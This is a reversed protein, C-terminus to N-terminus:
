FTQELLNTVVFSQHYPQHNQYLELRRQLEETNKMKVANAIDLASQTIALANTFDGNEAYAMALADLVLPQQGGTLDNAKQAFALATKGDRVSDNKDSALVRAVYTLMKFDDPGLRLTERFQGVAEADRGQQLLSKGLEFHPHPNQPAIEMANTFEAMGDSFKGMGTFVIGLSDHLQPNGPELAIAQRYEEISQDRQGLDDLVDGLNNHVFVSDPAIKEAARYQTLAEDLRNQKELAVGYNIHADVNNKTVQLAHRFLTEDDRWFHLQRETLATLTGLILLAVASFIFRTLDNLRPLTLIKEAGFAVAIFIGIAPLYTYRDAMAADGVKVLGIVPVLTGLFWLWGTLLFPNQKRMLWAAVSIFILVACSIALAIAPFSDPMPYIVALHEPWFIKSLYDAFAVPVNELRYSLPVAKLSKVAGQNQAIYTIVCSVVTLAFFPIKEILLRRLTSHNFRQLPWFDLLLMVFPLTVLMPKSMLSFAFFILAWGYFIKRKPDQVKAPGVFKAYCFLSLLGFFTSLVDKREAIWVVSEVHVPHLAFLAAVLIAPWLFRSSPPHVASSPRRKGDETRLRGNGGCCFLLLWFLLISNAIHILVNVLHMPGPNLGFLKCDTMHSLWTLPHWNAAHFTTFAWKFGELTWGNQVMQNEFVYDGDDYNIFGNRAVPLYVLLTALALLLAVFRPRSM